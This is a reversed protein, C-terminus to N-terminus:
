NRFNYHKAGIYSIKCLMKKNLNDFHSPATIQFTM